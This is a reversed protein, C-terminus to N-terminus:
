RISAGARFEHIPYHSELSKRLLWTAVRDQEGATADLGGGHGGGLMAVPHYLGSARFLAAYDQKFTFLGPDHHYPTRSFGVPAFDGLLLFGGDELCRDVEAVSRLLNRRDVWHLVFNVIVLDFEGVLPVAAATGHHFEVASYRAQGDEIAAVSPEVAVARCDYREALAALRYGNSAGIELVRQPRLGYIDLLRLCTDQEGAPATMHPRNRRFYADGETLSFRADQQMM